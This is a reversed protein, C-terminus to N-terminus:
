LISILQSSQPLLWVCYWCLLRLLFVKAKIERHSHFKQLSSFTTEMENSHKERLWWLVWSLVILSKLWMCFARHTNTTSNSRPWTHLSSNAIRDMRCVVYVFQCFIYTCLALGPMASLKRSVSSQLIISFVYWIIPWKFPSVRPAHGPNPPPSDFKNHKGTHRIPIFKHFPENHLTIWRLLLLYLLVPLQQQQQPPPWDTISCRSSSIYTYNRNPVSIANHIAILTHNCQAIVLPCIIIGILWLLIIVIKEFRIKSM